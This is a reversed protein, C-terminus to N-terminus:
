QQSVIFVRRTSFPGNEISQTVRIIRRDARHRNSNLLNKLKILIFLFFFPFLEDKLSDM